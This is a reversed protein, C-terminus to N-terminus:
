HSGSCSAAPQTARRNGAAEEIAGDTLGNLQQAWDFLEGVVRADSQSLRQELQGRSLKDAPIEHGDVAVLCKAVLKARMNDPIRMKVKRNGGEGEFEVMDREWEDREAATMARMTYEHGNIVRTETQPAPIAAELAALWAPTNASM